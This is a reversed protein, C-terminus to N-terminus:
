RRDFAVTESETILDGLKAEDYLRRVFYPASGSSWDRRTAGTTVQTHASPLESRMV